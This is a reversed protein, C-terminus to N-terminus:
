RDVEKMFKRHARCLQAYCDNCLCVPQKHYDYQFGWPSRKRMGMCLTINSAGQFTDLQAGCRDCHYKILCNDGGTSGVM